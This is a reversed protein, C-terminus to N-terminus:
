VRLNSTHRPQYFNRCLERVTDEPRRDLFECITNFAGEWDIAFDEYDLHLAKKSPRSQNWIGMRYKKREKWAEFDTANKKGQWKVYSQYNTQDERSICIWKADPYVSDFLNAMLLLQNDKYLEIGEGEVATRIAEKQSKWRPEDYHIQDRARLNLIRRTISYLEWHEMYGRRQVPDDRRINSGVNYGLRSIMGALFSTGSRPFGTVLVELGM